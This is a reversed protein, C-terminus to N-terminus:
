NDLFQYYRCDLILQQIPWKAIFRQASFKFKEQRFFDDLTSDISSM